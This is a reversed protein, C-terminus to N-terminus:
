RRSGFEIQVQVPENQLRLELIRLMERTAVESRPAVWSPGCVDHMLFVTDAPLRSADGGWREIQRWDFLPVPRATQVRLSALQSADRGLADIVSAAMQSGEDELVSVMGGVPGQGFRNLARYRRLHPSGSVLEERAALVECAPVGGVSVVVDGPVFPAIERVATVVIRGGVM